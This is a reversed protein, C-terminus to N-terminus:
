VEAAIELKVGTKAIAGMGGAVNTIKAVGNKQLISNAVMSRYGGQCYVYYHANKDLSSVTKPLEALPINIADKISGKALEGENRVDILKSGDNMRKVFEDASISEINQTKNGAEKWAKMGGKLYGAVKDYGVRGLRMVAEKEKGEDCVLLFNENKFISGVWIAFQGGLGINTAGPIHEKAFDEAGRTDLIVGDSEMQKKFQTADLARVNKDILADMDNEYGKRNIVADIFFYQPPTQLGDVMMEVFKERSMPQLAYNNKRQAGITTTSETGINKGCASGAGHGPYVIIDDSLKKLKEISDYLKSALEEKSLHSNAALDVRGVDGVFLTDGTFISVAKGKEDKVLFCCSELTHGPTHILEIKCKGLSFQQGDEAAIIDYGAQAGPGYIIKAGTKKLLDIHGSVFDAHFHTEMIYKIKANRAKAIDMYVQIDRLPDIIAAEGESEIYYAAQALCGTYIQQIYM